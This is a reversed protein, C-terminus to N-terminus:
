PIWILIVAGGLPSKLWLAVDNRTYLQYHGEFSREFGAVIVVYDTGSTSSHVELDAGTANQVIVDRAVAITPKIDTLVGAALIRRNIQFAPTAAM